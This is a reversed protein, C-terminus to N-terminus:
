AHQVELGFLRKKFINIFDLMCSDDAWVFIDTNNYSHERDMTIFVISSLEYNIPLLRLKLRLKKVDCNFNIMIDIVTNFNKVEYSVQYQSLNALTIVSNIEDGISSEAFFVQNNIKYEQIM